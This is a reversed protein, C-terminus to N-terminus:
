QRMNDTTYDGPTEFIYEETDELVSAYKGSQDIVAVRDGEAENLIMMFGSGLGLAVILIPVLITTIIFSKKAVISLYERRLVLWLRTRNM